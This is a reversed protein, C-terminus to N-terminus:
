VALLSGSLTGSAESLLFAIIAAISGPSTAKSMAQANLVKRNGSTDILAPVIANVRVRGQLEEALVQTLKAVGSKAVAYAASGAGGAIASRASVNVLASGNELRRAAEHCTLWATDLNLTIMRRWADFDTAEASGGAYGGVLNAVWRPPGGLETAIADWLASVQAPDSLDAAKWTGKFDAPPTSKPGGVAVIRDGRSALAQVVSTGLGGSAGCILSIDAM